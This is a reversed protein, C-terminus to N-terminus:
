GRDLSVEAVSVTLLPVTDPQAFRPLCSTSCTSAAGGSSQHFVFHPWVNLLPWDAVALQPALSVFTPM